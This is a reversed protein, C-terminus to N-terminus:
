WGKMSSRNFIRESSKMSFGTQAKDENTEVGEVGIDIIGQAVKTLFAIAANYRTLFTKERESEDVGKRSVLNYAAIDKCFKNLVKPTKEFPVNYRKALYGDIEATADEVAEEVFPTVKELREADDEIYDDGCIANIMDSKITKVVEEVSCYAM